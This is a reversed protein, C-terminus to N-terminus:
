SVQDDAQKPLMAQLEEIKAAIQEPTPQTPTTSQEETTPEEWMSDWGSMFDDPADVVVKSIGSLTAGVLKFPNLYDTAEM